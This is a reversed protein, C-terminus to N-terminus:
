IVNYCIWLAYVINSIHFLKVFFVYMCRNCIMYNETERYVSNYLLPLMEVFCDKLPCDWSTGLEGRPPQPQTWERRYSRTGQPLISPINEGSHATLSLPLVLERGQLWSAPLRHTAPLLTPNSVSCGSYLQNSSWGPDSCFVPNMWTARHPWVLCTEKYSHAFGSVVQPHVTTNTNYPTSPPRLLSNFVRFHFYYCYDSTTLNATHMLYSWFFSQQYAYLTPLIPYSHYSPNFFPLIPYSHYSPTIITLHPLLPLIPYSHYSPTLPALHPLCHHSPNLFTCSYM